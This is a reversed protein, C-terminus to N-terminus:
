KEMLNLYQKYQSSNSYNTQLLFGYEKALPTRKLKLAIKVGLLLTDPAVSGSKVYQQMYNNAQVYNRQRYSLKALEALSTSMRPNQQVAKLFYQRAKQRNPVLLACLGANEYASADKLYNKDSVALKFQQEAQQYRGQRCLFTGYNNHGAGATPNLSIAKLYYQEAQKQDGTTEYFYGLAGYATSTPNQKIAQLLKQKARATNGQNLYQLGLQVNIESAQDLNKTPAGTQEDINETTCASLALLIAFFVSLKILLKM